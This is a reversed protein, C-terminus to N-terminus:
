KVVGHGGHHELEHFCFADLRARDQRGVADIEIGDEGGVKSTLVGAFTALISARRFSATSEMAKTRKM